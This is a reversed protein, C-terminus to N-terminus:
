IFPVSHTNNKELSCINFFPTCKSTQAILILLSAGCIATRSQIQEAMLQTVYQFSRRFHQVYLLSSLRYNYKLIKNSHTMKKIFANVDDM